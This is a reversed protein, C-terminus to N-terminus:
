QSKMFNQERIRQRNVKRLRVKEAKGEDEIIKPQLITWLWEPYAEDPLAKVPDQGKLWQVGTLVTGESCSSRIKPQESPVEPTAADAAAPAAKATKAPETVPPAWRVTAASFTRRGFRTSTLPRRPLSRLFSM